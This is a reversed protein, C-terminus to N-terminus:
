LGLSALLTDRRPLYIEVGPVFDFIPDKIRDMNRQAFVWWLKSTGYLSNAALDPRHIFPTTIVWRYDDPDAAIPRIELIDLYDEKIKTTFWPSYSKYTAM